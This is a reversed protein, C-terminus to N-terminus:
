SGHGDVQIREVIGDTFTLYYVFETPGFNYIWVDGREERASPEGCKTQVELKPDGIFVMADGCQMSDADDLASATLCSVGVILCCLAITFRICPLRM